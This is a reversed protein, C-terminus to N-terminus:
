LSGSITTNVQITRPTLNKMIAIRKNHHVTILPTSFPSCVVIDPRRLDALFRFLGSTLVM